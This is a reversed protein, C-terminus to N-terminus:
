PHSLFLVILNDLEPSLIRISNQDEYTRTNHIGALGTLKFNYVPNNEVATAVKRATDKGSRL